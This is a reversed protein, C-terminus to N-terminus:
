IARYKPAYDMDYALNMVYYLAEMAGRTRYVERTLPADLHQSGIIMRDIIRASTGKPVKLGRCWQSIKTENENLMDGLKKNDLGLHTIMDCIKIANM